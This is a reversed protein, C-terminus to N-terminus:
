AGVREIEGGGTAHPWLGDLRELGQQGLTGAQGVGTQDGGGVGIPGAIAIGLEQM